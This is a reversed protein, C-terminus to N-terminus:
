ANLYAYSSFVILVDFLNRKSLPQYYSKELIDNIGQEFDAFLEGFNRWEDNEEDEHLANYYYYYAAIMSTRTISNPTSICLAKSLFSDAGLLLNMFESFKDRDIDPKGSCINEYGKREFASVDAFWLGYNCNEASVGLDNLDKLISQYNEFATRQDTKIQFVGVKRETPTGDKSTDTEIVTSCDYNECIFCEFKDEPFDLIDEVFLSKKNKDKVFIGKFFTTEQQIQIKESKSQYYTKDQIRKLMESSLKIKDQPLFDQSIFYLYVMEAFNKYNIGQGSPDLEFECLKGKYADSIFRMLNNTYYDQFLNKEIDSEYNIVDMKGYCYTMGYVMAFLYLGKKTAGEARFKGSALDDALKLLGYTGNPKKQSKTAGDLVNFVDDDINDLVEEDSPNNKTKEKVYKQIANKGSFAADSLYNGYKIFQKLIRVRLTDEEWHDEDSAMRDVIRRMYDEPSPYEKYKNYLTYLMRDEIELFNPIDSEKVLEEYYTNDQGTEYKIECADFMDYLKSLISPRNSRAGAKKLACIKYEFDKRSYLPKFERDLDNFASVMRRTITGNEM